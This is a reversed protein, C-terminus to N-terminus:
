LDSLFSFIAQDAMFQVHKPFAFVVYSIVEHQVKLNYLNSDFIEFM